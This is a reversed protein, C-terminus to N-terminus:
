QDESEEDEDERVMAPRGPKRKGVFNLTSELVQRITMSNVGYEDEDEPDTDHGELLPDPATDVLEDYNVFKDIQALSFGTITLTNLGSVVLRSWTRYFDLITAHDPSRLAFEADDVAFPVYIEDRIRHSNLVDRWLSYASDLFKGMEVSSSAVRDAKDNPHEGLKGYWHSTDVNHQVPGRSRLRNLRSQMGPNEFRLLHSLAQYHRDGPIQNLILCSKDNPDISQGVAIVTPWQDRTLFNVVLAPFTAVTAPLSPDIFKAFPRFDKNQLAKQLVVKRNQPYSTDNETRALIAIKAARNAVKIGKQFERARERRDGSMKHKHKLQWEKSSKNRRDKRETETLVGSRTTMSLLGADEAKKWEETKSDCHYEDTSAKRTILHLKLQHERTYSKNCKFPCAYTKKLVQQPM